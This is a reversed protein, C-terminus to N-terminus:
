SAIAGRVSSADQVQGLLAKVSQSGSPGVAQVGPALYSSSDLADLNMWQTDAPASIAGTAPGGTVYGFPAGDSITNGALHLVPTGVYSDIGFVSQTGSFGSARIVNGRATLSCNTPMGSKAFNTRWAIVANYSSAASGPSAYSGRGHTSYVTNGDFVPNGAYTEGQDTVMLARDCHLLNGVFANSKGSNDQFATHCNIVINNRILCNNSYIECYIGAGDYPHDGIGNAYTDVFNRQVITGSGVASPVKRDQLYVAGASSCCKGGDFFWNDEIVCANANNAVVVGAASYHQLSCDHVNVQVTYPHADAWSGLLGVVNAGHCNRVELGAINATMPDFAGVCVLPPAEEFDINEITVYSGCRLLLLCGSDDGAITVGNYFVTPNQDAPAYVYMRFKTQDAVHRYAQTLAAQYSITGKNVEYTYSSGWSGDGFRVYAYNFKRGRPHPFYWASRDADWIWDSAAPRFRYRIKPLTDPIGGPDYNTLFIRQAPTGNLNRFVVRDTQEFLAGNALAIVTGPLLTLSAVKDLTKYPAAASTGAYNDNGRLPDVYITPTPTLPRNTPRLAKQLQAYQAATLGSGNQAFAEPFRAMLTGLVSLKLLDRRTTM